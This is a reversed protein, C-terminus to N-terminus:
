EIEKIAKKIQIQSEYSELLNYSKMKIANQILIERLSLAENITLLRSLMIYVGHFRPDNIHAIQREKNNVFSFSVIYDSIKEHRFYWVIKSIGNDTERFRKMVMKFKSLFKFEDNFEQPEIYHIDNKKMEYLFEAMREKPFPYDAHTKKYEGEILQFQQHQLM